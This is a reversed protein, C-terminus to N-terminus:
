LLVNISIAAAVVTIIVGVVAALVGLAGDRGIMNDIRARRPNAPDYIVTVQAGERAPAPNTGIDSEVEIDQGDVTRFRMLPYYQGSPGSSSTSSSWRLRVVVGPVRVGTERLRRGSLAIRLGFWSFVLGFAVFLLPFFRFLTSDPDM